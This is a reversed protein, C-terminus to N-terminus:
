LARDVTSKKKKGGRENNVETLQNNRLNITTPIHDVVFPSERLDVLSLINNNPAIL